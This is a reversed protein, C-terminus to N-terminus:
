RLRLLQFTDRLGQLAQDSYRFVALNAGIVGALATAPIWKPIARGFWWILGSAAFLILYPEFPYRYRTSGFFIVTMLSVYLLIGVLLRNV